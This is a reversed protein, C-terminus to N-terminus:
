EKVEVQVTKSGSVVMGGADIELEGVKSNRSLMTAGLGPQSRALIQEVSPPPSPFSLGMVDFDPQARWVRVYARTNDRLSNLFAVLQSPTRPPTTLLQRYETTNTTSGDAVTFYLPGTAAGVPVRYSVERTIEAGNPGAMAVHLDVTEGPRVERRSTWVQDIRAERREAYSDIDIRIEKLRRLGDFGSQLAYALPSAASLSALQPLSLDGAYTNSLRIPAAHEQFRIEGRVALTANGVSRETAEVTSYFAMQVLLPSLVSDNVMQMEYLMRKGAAGGSRPTVSIALPILEAQRGLVGAVGTSRDTTITGMWEKPTSIKFSSTLTPVLTLVESRAFPMDTGGLALFRHGFAYVRDGDVYTVTGDAGVSMDGTLLQVSIMSGPALTRLDGFGPKLRGGGSLGQQPELGLDRLQPAFHRLTGQTFGTFCVPTAIDVLRAGGTLIAEPPELGQTLDQGTLSARARVPREPAAEGVAILDEIPRIAAIPEKSNAFTMAVAGVLRGGIYVPSGSMGQLVGTTELPGGSLRALILSQRPGANELVGLIDVQFEEIRSGSFVTKGIGRMGPRVDALPFFGAQGYLSVTILLSVLFRM